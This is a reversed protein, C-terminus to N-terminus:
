VLFQQELVPSTFKVTGHAAKLVLLRDEPTAEPYHQLPGLREPKMLSRPSDVWQPPWALQVLRAALKSSRIIRAIACFFPASWDQFQIQNTLIPLGNDILAHSREQLSKWHELIGAM